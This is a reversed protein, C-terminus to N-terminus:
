TATSSRRQPPRRAPRRFPKFPVRGAVLADRMAIISPLTASSKRCIIAVPPLALELAVPVIRLLGLKQDQLARRAPALTLLAARSAIALMNAMSRAQVVAVPPMLGERLFAQAFLRSTLVDPPLLAWRASALDAITVRKRRGLPHGPPAVVCLPVPYLTWSVLSASRESFFDPSLRGVVCDVSGNQLQALLDNIGAEVVDIRTDPRADLMRGIAAPLVEHIAHSVAGVRLCQTPSSASSLEDGAAELERLAIRARELLRQAGALPIMGRTSRDYLRTGFAREVDRVLASAAPQTIGLREAAKRVSGLEDIAEILQLDRLRLRGLQVRRENNSETATDM